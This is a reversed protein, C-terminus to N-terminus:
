RMEVLLRYGGSAPNEMSVIQGELNLPSCDAFHSIHDAAPPPGLDISANLFGAVLLLSLFPLWGWRSHGLFLWFLLLLGVAMGHGALSWPAVFRVMAIGTAYAALLIVPSL